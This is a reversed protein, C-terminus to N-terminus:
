IQEEWSTSVTVDSGGASTATVTISDSPRVFFGVKQNISSVKALSFSYIGKGAVYTATNNYEMVSDNADIDVWTGGTLVGNRYIRITVNKTGDVAISFLQIRVNERNTKGVFTSKNRIALIVTEVSVGIVVTSAASHLHGKFPSDGERLGAMSPTMIVVNSTTTGNDVKASLPLTPNYISPVIHTNAYNIRHVDQFLGTDPNEVSFTIAGFGLWQFKIQFVNGKTHDLIVGHKDNGDFTAINWNAQTIWNDVSNQRRLVGFSEGNFGFFFGDEDDGFGIVQSTGAIGSTFVSTFRIAVGIGPSYGLAERSYFASTSGTTLGSSVVAMSDAQAVTGSNIVETNILDDNINYPFKITIISTLEAVSMEGFASFELSQELSDTVTVKEETNIYTPM